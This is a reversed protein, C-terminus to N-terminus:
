SGPEPIYLITSTGMRVGDNFAVAAFAKVNEVSGAAAVPTASRGFADECAEGDFDTDLDSNALPDEDYASQAQEQSTFENCAPDADAMGMSGDMMAIFGTVPRFDFYEVAFYRKPLLELVAQYQADDTLSQSPTTGLNDIGAGIGAVLQDGIVGFEAPPAMDMEDSAITYITDDGAKRTSVDIGTDSREIWDAIEQVTPALAAPEAAAVTLLAEMDFGDGSITPFTAYAIVQDGFHAFLDEWPDFGLIEKAQAFQQRIDDATPMFQQMRNKGRGGSAEANLAQALGFAIGVWSARDVRSAGFLWADAPVTEASAAIEADNMMATQPMAAGGLPISVTDLRFGPEDASVTMGGAAPVPDPMDPAFEKFAELMEPDMAALMTSEDFYLFSLSEAPLEDRVQQVTASDALSPADGSITDVIQEVDAQSAAAIIFDGARGAAFGRIDHMGNMGGMGHMGSAAFEKMAEDIMRRHQQMMEEDFEVWLLNADGYTIEEVSSNIEAALGQLQREVYSWAADVDGPMLVAAVGLAGDASSAVPTAADKGRQRGMQGFQEIVTHITDSSVMLAMEGGLLADLDAETFDGSDESEELISERGLDLADPIGARALLTAAQQWQSGDFDLDIEYFLATSEPAAGATAPLATQAAVERASLMPAALGIALALVTMLRWALPTWKGPFM